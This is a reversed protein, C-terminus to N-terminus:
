RCVLYALSQLESTHEESRPITATAQRAAQLAAPGITLLEAVPLRVLAAVLAPLHAPHGGAHRDELTVPQGALDGVDRLGQRFAEQEAPPPSGTRVIGIRPVPATQQAAATLPAALLSLTRMVLCEVTSCWM